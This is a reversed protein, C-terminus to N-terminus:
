ENLHYTQLYFKVQVGQFEPMLHIKKSLTQEVSMCDDLLLCHAISDEVPKYINTLDIRRMKTPKAKIVWAVKPAIFDVHISYAVVGKPAQQFQLQSAIAQQMEFVQPSKRLRGQGVIYSATYLKPLWFEGEHKSCPILDLYEVIEPVKM